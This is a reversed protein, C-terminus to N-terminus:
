PAAVAQKDHATRRCESLDHDLKTYQVVIKEAKLEVMGKTGCSYGTAVGVAFVLGVAVSILLTEMWDSM